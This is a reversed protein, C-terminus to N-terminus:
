RKAAFSMWLWFAALTGLNIAIGFLTWRVAKWSAARKPTAAVRTAQFVRDPVAAQCTSQIM